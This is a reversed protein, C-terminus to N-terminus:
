FDRIQKEKKERQKIVDSQIESCLGTCLTYNGKFRRLSIIDDNTYVKTRVGGIIIHEFRKMLEEILSKTTAIELDQM